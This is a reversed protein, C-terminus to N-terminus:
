SNIDKMEARGSSDVQLNKWRRMGTLNLKPMVRYVYASWFVSVVMVPLIIMGIETLEPTLMGGREKYGLAFFMVFRPITSVACLISSLYAMFILLYRTIKKEFGAFFRILLLVFVATSIDALLMYARESYPGILQYTEILNFVHLLKYTPFLILFFCNGGTIGEGKVINVATVVMTIACIIMIIYMFWDLVTLGEFVFVPNDETSLESNKTAIITLPAAIDFAMFAATAFFGIAAVPSIKKGLRDLKLKMPNLLICSKVAKDRSEGMILIAAIVAMGIIIAFMTTNKFLSDDIYKGTNFNMNTYLQSIRCLVAIVAVVIYVPFSMKKDLFFRSKKYPTVQKEKM